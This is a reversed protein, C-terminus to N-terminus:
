IYCKQRIWLFVIQFYATIQIVGIAVVFGFVYFHTNTSIIITIKFM